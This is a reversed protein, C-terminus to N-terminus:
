KVVNALKDQISKTMLKDVEDVASLVMQHLQTDREALTTDQTTELTRSVEVEAFPENVFNPSVIELRVKVHMGYQANVQDTFYGQLDDTMPMDRKVISADLIEVKAIGMNGVAQFRAKAWDHLAVYPPLFLEHEINPAHYPPVYANVVQVDNVDLRTIGYKSYDPARLTPGPLVQTCAALLLIFAFCSVWKIM